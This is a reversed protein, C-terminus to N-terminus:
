CPSSATQSTRDVVVNGALATAVNWWYKLQSSVRALSNFCFPTVISAPESVATIALQTM